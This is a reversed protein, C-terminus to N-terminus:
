IHGSTSTASVSLRCHLWCIDSQEPVTLEYHLDRWSYSIGSFVCGTRPNTVSLMHVGRQTKLEWVGGPFKKQKKSRM